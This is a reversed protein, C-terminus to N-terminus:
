SPDGWYIVSGEFPLGHTDHFWDAMETFGEFGDAQAFENDTQPASRDHIISHLRTGNLWMETPEIRIRDIAIVTAEGLLRCQPTRMGTYLKLRDGVRAHPRGDKRDARVTRRKTGDEVDAAFRLM